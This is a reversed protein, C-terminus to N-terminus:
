VDWEFRINPFCHTFLNECVDEVEIGHLIYEPMHGSNDVQITNLREAEAKLAIKFPWFMKDVMQPWLHM